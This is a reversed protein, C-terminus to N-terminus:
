EFLFFHHQMKSIHLLKVDKLADSSLFKLQMGHGTSIVRKWVRFWNKNFPVDFERSYLTVNHTKTCIGIYNCTANISCRHFYKNLYIESHGSKSVTENRCTVEVFYGSFTSKEMALTSVIIYTFVIAQIPNLM